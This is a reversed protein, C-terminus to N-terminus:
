QDNADKVAQRAQKIESQTHTANFEQNDPESGGEGYLDPNDYDLLVEGCSECEIAVNDPQDVDGYGVCVIKHGQHRKLDQYNFSSM